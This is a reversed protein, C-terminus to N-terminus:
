YSTPESLSDRATDIPTETYGSIPPHSTMEKLLQPISFINGAALEPRVFIIQVFFNAVCLSLGIGIVIKHLSKNLQLLSMVIIALSGLAFFGLVGLKIFHLTVQFQAIQKMMLLSDLRPYQVIMFYLSQILAMMVQVGLIAGMVVSLPFSLLMDEDEETTPVLPKNAIQKTTALEFHSLRPAENQHNESVSTILPDSNEKLQDPQLAALPSRDVPEVVKKIEIGPLLTVDQRLVQEMETISPLASEVKKTPTSVPQIFDAPQNIPDPPTIVPPTFNDPLTLPQTAPVSQSSDQSITTSDIGEIAQTNIAPGSPDITLNATPVSSVSQSLDAM